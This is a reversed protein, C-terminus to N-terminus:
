TPRRRRRLLVYLAGAGGDKPQAPATALISGRCDPEALWRPVSRRLVGEGGAGGKGTIILVARTGSERARALFRLLAGHAEAQTMGHLDLRAEIPMQGRKLRLASRRDLGAGEPAPAPTGRRPAAAPSAAAPPATGSVPAAASPDPPPTGARPADRPRVDRVAARWLAREDPSPRRAAM